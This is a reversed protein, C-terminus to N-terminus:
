ERRSINPQRCMERDRLIDIEVTSHLQEASAAWSRSYRTVCLVRPVCARSAFPLLFLIVRSVCVCVSAYVCVSPSLLSSPRASDDLFLSSAAAIPIFLYHRCCGAASAAAGSGAGGGGVVAVAAAAVVVAVVHLLGVIWSAATCAWRRRCCGWRGCRCGRGRSYGLLRADVRGGEVELAAADLLGDQREHGLYPDRHERRDGERPRYVRARAQSHQLWDHMAGQAPLEKERIYKRQTHINVCRVM